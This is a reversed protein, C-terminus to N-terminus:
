LTNDSSDDNSSDDNVTDDDLSDDNVNDDNVVDDDTTDDNVVDDDTTGDNVVDDDTTGDDTTDDNVVDDDTTDDDASDDETTSTLYLAYDGFSLKNAWVGADNYYDYKATVLLKEAVRLLNEDEPLTAYTFAFENDTKTYTGILEFEESMEGDLTGAKYRITASGDDAITVSSIIVRTFSVPEYVHVDCLAIEEPTYGAGNSMMALMEEKIQEPTYEGTYEDSYYYDPKGTHPIFVWYPKYDYRVESSKQVVFMSAGSFYETYECLVYEQATNPLFTGISSITGETVPPTEEIDGGGTIGSIIDGITIDSDGLVDKVKGILVAAIISVTIVVVVLVILLIHWWKLKKKGKKEGSGFSSDKQKGCLPKKEKESGFSEAKESKFGGFLPKKESGTGFSSKSEKAKGFSSKEKKEKKPKEKKEKGFSSSGGFSSSKGFSSGGGFSGGDGFLKKGESKEHKPKEKPAKNKSSGFEFSDKRSM